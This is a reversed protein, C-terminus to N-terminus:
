SPQCEKLLSIKWCRMKVSELDRSRIVGKSSNLSTHASVKIPINCIFKSKLLCKSHNQKNCEVLLQGSKIRKVSKLEDALGQLAKYVAFPSLSNLAGKSIPEIILFRPWNETSMNNSHKM